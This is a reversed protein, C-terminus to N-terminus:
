LQRENSESNTYRQTEEIYYVHCDGLLKGGEKRAVRM